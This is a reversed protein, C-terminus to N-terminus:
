LASRLAAVTIPVTAQTATEITELAHKAVVDAAENQDLGCHSCVFQFMLTSVVAAAAAIDHWVSVYVCELHSLPGAYLARLSAQSDTAILIRKNHFHSPNAVIYQLSTRLGILEAQCSATFLGAPATLTIVPPPSPSRRRKPPPTDTPEPVPRINYLLAAVAGRHDDVSADTWFEFDRPGRSTM